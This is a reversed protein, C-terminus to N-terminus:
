ARGIAELAAYLLASGQQHGPVIRQAPRLPRRPAVIWGDARGAFPRGGLDGLATETIVGLRSMDKLRRGGRGEL